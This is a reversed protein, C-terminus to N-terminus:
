KTYKERKPHQALFFEPLESWLGKKLLWGGSKYM